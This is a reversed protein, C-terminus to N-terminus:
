PSPTFADAIRKIDGSMVTTEFTFRERTSVKIFTYRMDGQHSSVVSTCFYRQGKEFWLVGNFRVDNTCTYQQGEGPEAM